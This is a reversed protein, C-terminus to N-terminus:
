AEIAPACQSDYAEFYHPYRKVNVPDEHHMITMFYDAPNAFEPCELGFNRAFYDPADQAPGQYIFRGEVMLILNDFLNYIESNPQHITMFVTKGEKEAVMKLHRVIIFSTLSDLGSTPEDLVLVAPDSIMEFAISTRKREGGSIGKLQEGGVLVDLCKEL